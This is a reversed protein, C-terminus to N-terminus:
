PLQTQCRRPPWSRTGCAILLYVSCWINFTCHLDGMFIVPRGGSLADIRNKVIESSYYPTSMAVNDENFYQNYHTNIVFIEKGTTNERLIAWVAIRKKIEYTGNDQYTKDWYSYGEQNFDGTDGNWGGGRLWFYGGSVRTFKDNRYAIICAESDQVVSSTNGRAAIVLSYGNGEFGSTIDALQDGNNYVAVEQLGIIDCIPAFYGDNNHLQNLVFSLFDDARYGWRQVSPSLYDGYETKANITMVHLNIVEKQQIYLPYAEWSGIMIGDNGWAFYFRFVKNADLIPQKGNKWHVDPTFTISDPQTAGIRLLLEITGYDADETNLSVTLPNTIEEPSWTCFTNRNISITSYYPSAEVYQVGGGGSITINGSGLISEGNITKLSSIIPASLMGISEIATQSVNMAAYNTVGDEGSVIAQAYSVFYANSSYFGYVVTCVVPAVGANEAWIVVTKGNNVADQLGAYEEAAVGDPNFIYVNDSGGSGSGSGSITINGSADSTVEVGNEGKINHTSRVTSNEVLNLHVNGNTAAANAKATTSAGVINKATYHTDTDTNVGIIRWYTGDFIFDYTNYRNIMGSTLSNGKYYVNKAGTGNVNLSTIYTLSGEFKVAVRAGEVLTDPFYGYKTTVVVATATGTYEAYAPLTPEGSGGCKFVKNQTCFGDGEDGNGLIFTIDGSPTSQDLGDAVFEEVSGEYYGLIQGM